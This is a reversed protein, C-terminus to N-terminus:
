PLQEHINMLHIYKESLWHLQVLLMFVHNNAVQLEEKHLVHDNEKGM